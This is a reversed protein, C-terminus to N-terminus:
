ESITGGLKDEIIQKFHKLLVPNNLNFHVVFEKHLTDINGGFFFVEVDHIFPFQTVNKSHEELARQEHRVTKKLRNVVNRNDYKGM